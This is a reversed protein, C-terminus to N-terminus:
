VKIEIGKKKIEEIFPDGKKFYDTPYPHPEIDFFKATIPSLTRWNEFTNDTFQDSVLLVDIDSDKNVNGSVFSGFLIVKKFYINNKYCHKVYEKILNIASKKTLM